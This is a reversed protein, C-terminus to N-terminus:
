EGIQEDILSLIEAIAEKHDDNRALEKAKLAKEKAGVMDGNIGKAYAYLYYTEFDEVEELGKDLFEYALPMAEEAGYEEIIDLAEIYWFDQIEAGAGTRYENIAGNYGDWDGTYAFFMKNTQFQAAPLSEADAVYVPVVENKLVEVISADENAIAESLLTNYVNGVVVDIGNEGHAAAFSDRNNKIYTFVKSDASVTFNALFDLNGPDLMEAETMDSKLDAAIDVAKAEDSDGLLVAYQMLEARSLSGNAYGEELAPLKGATELVGKTSAMFEATETYGSIEGLLSEGKVDLFLYTPFGDVGYNAAFGSGFSTEADLKVNVFNSNFYEGVEVESFVDRDMMKCYGCWDTYVDVFINLSRSEATALVKNWDEETNVETFAIETATATGLTLVACLCLVVSKLKNAIMDITKPRRRIPIKTLKCIRLSELDILM